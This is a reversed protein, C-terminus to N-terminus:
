GCLFVLQHNFSRTSFQRARDNVASNRLVLLSIHKLWQLVMGNFLWIEPTLSSRNWLVSRTLVKILVWAFHSVICKIGFLYNQKTLQPTFHYAQFVTAPIQWSCNRLMLIQIVCGGGPAKLLPVVIVRYRKRRVAVCRPSIYLCCQMKNIVIVTCPRLLPLM